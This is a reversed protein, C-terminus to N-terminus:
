VQFMTCVHCPNLLYLASRSCLKYGIEVGFVLCLLVLLFRKMRPEEMVPFNRPLSYRKSAYIGFGVMLATALLTELVMQKRPLFAACEHGGHGPIDLHIGGYFADGIDELLM